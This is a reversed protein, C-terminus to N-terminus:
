EDRLVGSIEFSKFNYENEVVTWELDFVKRNFLVKHTVYTIEMYGSAEKSDAMKLLEQYTALLTCWGKKLGLQFYNWDQFPFMSEDLVPLYEHEYVWKTGEHFEGGDIVVPIAMDDESFDLSIYGGALLAEELSDAIDGYQYEVQGSRTFLEDFMGFHVRNDFFLVVSDEEPLDDMSLTHIPIYQM